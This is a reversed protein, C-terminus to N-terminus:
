NKVIELTDYEYRRPFELTSLMKVIIDRARTGFGDEERRKIIEALSPGEVYVYHYAVAYKQLLSHISDRYKEYLHTNDICFDKHSNVCEFIHRNITRTVNQEERETGIYKEGPLCYGLEERVSDRSFTPLDKEKCYTSKGAGPVGILLYVNVADEPIVADKEQYLNAADLLKQYRDNYDEKLKSISGKMDCYVLECSDLYSQKSSFLRNIKKPYNEKELLHHMVMHNRVLEVIYERQIIDPWDFIMLRTMKSGKEAHFPASWDQKEQSFETVVPKAIDHFLAAMLLAEKRWTDFGKAKAQMAEVVLRTHNYPSGEGHFRESHKCTKMAEFQPFTDIFDWKPEYDKTFFDSFQM